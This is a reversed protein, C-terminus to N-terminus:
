HCIKLRDNEANNLAQGLENRDTRGCMQHEGAAPGLKVAAVSLLRSCRNRDNLQTRKCGNEDIERAINPRYRCREDAVM